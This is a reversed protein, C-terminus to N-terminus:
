VALWLLLAGTCAVVQSDRDKIVFVVPDEHLQDRRALLWIRTVLYLLLPCLLWIVEPHSYLNKEDGSNIYLALVLVAMYGAATGFHSLTELDIIQYGRGPVHSEGAQKLTLLESYRKVLALSLFLFMSFGLLWFSPTISVAAAGAIIRITYLGALTLVDIVAFRKLRLSYALTISYYIVLLALFELPLLTAIVLSSVLLVPVLAAGRFLSISVSAFPRYKKTPHRRDDPLDLLDNLLYVSSACLGFAIFALLAQGQLTMEGFRHSALLPVFVLLNKLWQHLRLARLYRTWSRQGRDDFHTVPKGLQEADKLVGPDPNVVIVREAHSWIALDVKANGAYDFGRNNCEIQLSALKNKGSLNAVANSAVVKDFIGLHDAVAHAYKENSATALILQRGKAYEDKLYTLFSGNYPLLAVDLEVRRAIEAKLHAKGQVLWVPLIFVLLINRKLLQFVSEILLDTRLLTGDLDVCVPRDEFDTEAIPIKNDM